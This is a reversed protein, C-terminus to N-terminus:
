EADKSKSSFWGGSKKKTETTKTEASNVAPKDLSRVKEVLKEYTQRDQDLEILDSHHLYDGILTTKLKGSGGSMTLEYKVWNEGPNQSRTM